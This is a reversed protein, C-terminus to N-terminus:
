DSYDGGQNSYGKAEEDYFLSDDLHRNGTPNEVLAWIGLARGISGSDM